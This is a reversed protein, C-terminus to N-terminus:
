MHSSSSPAATSRRTACRLPSFTFLSRRCQMWIVNGHAGDFGPCLRQATALRASRRERSARALGTMLFLSGLVDRATVHKPKVNDAAWSGAVKKSAAKSSSQWPNKSNFPPRERRAAPLLARERGGGRADKKRPRSAALSGAAASAADGPHSQGASAVKLASVAVQGASCLAPSARPRAAAHSSCLVAPGGAGRRLSGRVSGRALCALVISLLAVGARPLGRRARRGPVSADGTRALARAPGTKRMAGLARPPVPRQAPVRVAGRTARGRGARGGGAPAHLCPPAPGRPSKREAAM